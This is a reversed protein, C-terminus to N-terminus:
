KYVNSEPKHPGQGGYVERLTNQFREVEKELATLAPVSKSRSLLGSKQKILVQIQKRLTELEKVIAQVRKAENWFDKSIKLADAKADAIGKVLTKVENDNAAAAANQVGLGRLRESLMDVGAFYRNWVGATENWYNNNLNDLKEVMPAVRKRADEFDASVKALEKPV